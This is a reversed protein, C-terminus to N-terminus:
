ALDITLAHLATRIILPREAYEDGKWRRKIKSLYVPEGDGYLPDCVIPYGIAALHVRIQHTRGTQPRAEVIALPGHTGIVSFDTICPKGNGDVITRHKRDGDPTLPLECVTETWSPRGKVVARYAKHVQGLEFAVSLARHAEESRALVVIGSTDLDLRHVPWLRGYDGELQRSLVPADPDYRDPASLMGAPKNVALIDQDHYIVEIEKNM